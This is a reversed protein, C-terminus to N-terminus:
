RIKLMLTAPQGAGVTVTSALSQLRPLVDPDMWAGEELYDTAIVFYEGPLLGKVVYHGDATSEASKIFRSRWGWSQADRGFVVIRAGSVPQGQDNQVVGSVAATNTTIVIHLPQATNAGTFDTPTDTIDTEGLTVRAVAWDDPVHDVRFVRPGFVGNFMFTGDGNVAVPAAPSPGPQPPGNSNNQATPLEYDTQAAVVHLNAPLAQGAPGSSGTPGSPGSIEIKGNLVAGKATTITLETMDQGAITVRQVSFEPVATMSTMTTAMLWYDGPPVSPFQFDDGQPSGYFGSVQGTPAGIGQLRFAMMAAPKGSSDVVHGAVRAPAAAGVAFDLSDLDQGAAVTVLRADTVRPTGPFYTRVLGRGTGQAAATRPDPAADIYYDGAPLTHVRFRGLDDTIAQRIATPRKGNPGYVLRVASVTIGAAPEGAETLLRGSLAAGRQMQVDLTLSQGAKIEFPAPPDFARRANSLLPVFGAKDVAIRYMGAALHDFHYRGDTDTDATLGTSGGDASLTVRARRVPGLQQDITILVRGTITATGTPAQRTVPAAVGDRSAQGHATRPVVFGFLMVALCAAVHRVTSRRRNLIM